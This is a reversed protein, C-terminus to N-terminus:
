HQLGRPHRQRHAAHAPRAHHVAPRLGRRLNDRKSKNLLIYVPKAPLAHEHLPQDGRWEIATASDDHHHGWRRCGLYLTDEEPERTVALAPSSLAPQNKGRLLRDFIDPQRPGWHQYQHARCAVQGRRLYAPLELARSPQDAPSKPQLVEAELKFQELM